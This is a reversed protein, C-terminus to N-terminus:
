LTLNQWYNMVNEAGVLPTILSSLLFVAGVLVLVGAVSTGGNKQLAAQYEYDAPYKARLEKIKKVAHRRYLPWATFGWVMRLVLGVVFVINSITVLTATTLGAVLPNGSQLMIDLFTPVSGGIWLLFSLAAWGWMKRYVFYFPGLVFASLMFGVRNGQKYQHLRMLYVAASNGFFRAWDANPIGETEGAVDLQEYLAYEPPPTAAHLPAGCRVCFISQADNVTGCSPCVTTAQAMPPPYPAFPAQGPQRNQEPAQQGVPSAAASVPPATEPAPDPRYEFGHTHKEAFVCQGNQRYCARHYPAGCEPCVVIDDDKALPKHCVPCNGLSKEM